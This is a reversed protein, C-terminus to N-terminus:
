DRAIDGGKALAVARMRKPLSLVIKRVLDRPLGLATRRLRKKYAGVTERKKPTHEAMRAERVFACCCAVLIIRNM